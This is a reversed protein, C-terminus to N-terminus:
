RMGWIDAFSTSGYMPNSNDCLIEWSVMDEQLIQEAQLALKIELVQLKAQPLIPEYRSPWFRVITSHNDVMERVVNAATFEITHSDIMVGEQQSIILKRPLRIKVKVYKALVVGINNVYVMLTPFERLDLRFTLELKPHRQRNMIDRIEYDEMSVSQFNYRKYYRKDAAQHATESKDVEVVYVVMLDSITIPYINLRDIRPRINSNIIQELREKSFQMRDIPDIGRPFHRKEADESIGYVIIGGDSNALASVDKSIEVSCSQTNDLSKASKYDLNLSEEVKNKILSELFEKNYRPNSTM